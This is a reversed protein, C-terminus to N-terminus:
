EVRRYSSGGGGQERKENEKKGIGKIHCSSAGGTSAITASWPSGFGMQAEVHHVCNFDRSVGVMENGMQFNPCLHV